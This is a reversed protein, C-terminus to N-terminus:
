RAPPTHRATERVASQFQGSWAGTAAIVLQTKIAFPETDEEAQTTLGCIQRSTDSARQLELAKVYNLYLAGKAGAEALLRQVLRTDHTVADTFVSAATLNKSNLGPM